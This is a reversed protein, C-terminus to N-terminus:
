APIHKKRLNDPCRNMGVCIQAQAYCRFHLIAKFTEFDFISLLVCPM